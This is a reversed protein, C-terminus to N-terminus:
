QSRTPSATALIPPDYGTALSKGFSAAPADPETQQLPAANAEAGPFLDNIWANVQQRITLQSTADPHHRAPVVKQDGLEHLWSAAFQGITGVDGAPLGTGFSIPFVETEVQRGASLYILSELKTIIADAAGWEPRIGDLRDPLLKDDGKADNVEALVIQLLRRDIDPIEFSWTVGADGSRAGLTIQKSGGNSNLIDAPTGLSVLPGNLVLNPSNRAGNLTQGLLLLTQTATSKGGANFGTLLTLPALDLDLAEFCKFNTLKIQDIM